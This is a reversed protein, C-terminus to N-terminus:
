RAADVVKMQNELAMSLQRPTVPKHIIGLTHEAADRQAEAGTEGTLIIGPISAGYAERVRLIAETGNRGERLRYDAVVIDPRQGIVELAALARDASGAALVEYGWAEFTAKLGLLVIADDDVLVAFRGNGAVETASVPAQRPEARGLPVEISFVSGGGLISRVEVPHELLSSLRQVIALGLGLGRNRDREPNGVQHFEEWIRELHEPPIGIGTDAVEIRLSNEEERCAITIHGQDTYRLANEILNRVMRGLLTRDSRVAAECNTVHLNLGKAAAVPAYASGIQEVVQGVAFDEIAPQVIGADLRSIDLLSDLLDRLADLGRGLHKLADQGKPAVHPKLVDLFLLLSQMPQRLDHSAAALFRSKSRNAEEAADRAARLEAEAHKRDHIDTSAGFWRVVEGSRPDRYPEGRVLFWRYDGDKSRLRHEVLYTGGTRRAEEFREATLAAEDPHIFSAIVETVTTPEYPVGTYDSWQWNFFEVQGEADTIWVIAPVADAMLRFREEGERLAAEARAQDTVDAGEVFIGTVAGGADFVPQLVFDLFREEMAGNPGSPTRLPARHATFAEGTAYVRDLLEHFGQGEVEPQAERVSRGLLPRNGTLRDLAENVLEYVHDPGRLMCMFGPAQQFMGALREREANVQRGALVRETTEVVIAIVGAPVGSEDLVPSYDLNMWVPEPRGNRHLTLEQDKYSLTGGSLGVKMVNDNFDAIEPWGERVKSGLLQPHRGGAVGSYADNYLMVGDEGWLLVIPVPSRLLLDVATRLSQPWTAIPGLPTRSWHHARILAGTAGGGVPWITEGRGADADM